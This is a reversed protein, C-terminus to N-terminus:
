AKKHFFKQVAPSLIYWLERLGVFLLFVAFAKKLWEGNISNSIVSGAIGGLIGGVFCSKVASFRILGNKRHMWISLAATPIFLLLNTAQAQVQSFSSFFSLYLLLVTGGGLGMAAVACSFFVAAASFLSFEM